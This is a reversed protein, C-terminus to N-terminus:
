KYTRLGMKIGFTGDGELFGGLWNPNITFCNADLIISQDIIRKNNM